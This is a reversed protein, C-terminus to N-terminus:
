RASLIYDDLCDVALILDNHGQLTLLEFCGDRWICKGTHTEDGRPENINKRSTGPKAETKSKDQGLTQPPSCDM